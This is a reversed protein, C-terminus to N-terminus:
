KAGGIVRVEAELPRYDAVKVVVTEKSSVVPPSKYADWISYGYGGNWEYYYRPGKIEEFSCTTGEGTKLCTAGGRNRIFPGPPQETGDSLRTFKGDFVTGIPINSLPIPDAPKAPQETRVIKM